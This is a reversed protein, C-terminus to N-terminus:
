AKLEEFQASVENYKSEFDETEAEEAMEVEEEETVEASLEVSETVAEEASLEILKNLTSMQKKSLKIKTTLADQNAPVSVISAEILESDTIVYIDGVMEGSIPDITISAARLSGKKVKGEIQKAFDDLESDFQADAVLQNDVMQVNGWTGIPQAHKHQYLMVPNSLFRELRIGASRILITKDTLDIPRESNLIFQM